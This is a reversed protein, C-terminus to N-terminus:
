KSRSFDVPSLATGVQLSMAGRCLREVGDSRDAPRVRWYRDRAHLGQCPLPRGNGAAIAMGLALRAM